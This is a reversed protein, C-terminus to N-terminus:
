VILRKELDRVLSKRPEAMMLEAALARAARADDSGVWELVVPIAQEVIDEAETDAEVPPLAAGTGDGVVEPSWEGVPVEVALMPERVFLDEGAGGQLTLEEVLRVDGLAYLREKEDDSGINWFEVFREVAEDTVGLLDLHQEIEELRRDVRWETPPRLFAEAGNPVLDTRGGQEDGM